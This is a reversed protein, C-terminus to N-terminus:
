TSHGIYDRNRFRYQIEFYCFSQFQSCVELIQLLLMLLMGSITESFPSLVAHCSNFVRTSALISLPPLERPDPRRRRHPTKYIARALSTRRSLPVLFASLDLRGLPHFPAPM